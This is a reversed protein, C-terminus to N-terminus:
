RRNRDAVLEVTTDTGSYEIGQVELEGLPPASPDRDQYVPLVEEREAVFPILRAVPLARDTVIVEKGARVARMYTGLKAKLETASVKSMSM